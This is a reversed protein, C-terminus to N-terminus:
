LERRRPPHGPRRRRRAWARALTARRQRVAGREPRLACLHRRMRTAGDDFVDVMERVYEQVGQEPRQGRQEAAHRHQHHADGQQAHGDARLGTGRLEGAQDGAHHHRGIEGTKDVATIGTRTQDFPHAIDAGKGHQGGHRRGQGHQMRQPGVRPEPATQAEGRPQTDHAQVHHDLAPEIHHGAAVVPALHKGRVHGDAAYRHRQPLPQNQHTVAEAKYGKSERRNQKRKRQHGGGHGRNGLRNLGFGRRQAHAAQKRDRGDPRQRGHARPKDVAGEEAQAIDKPVAYTEAIPTGGRKHGDGNQTAGRELPRNAMQRVAVVPAPDQEPHTHSGTDQRKQTEIQRPLKLVEQQHQAHTKARQHKRDIAQAHRMGIVQNVWGFHQFCRAPQQQEVAYAGGDARGQGTTQHIQQPGLAQHQVKGQRQAQKGQRDPKEGGAFTAAEAIRAM